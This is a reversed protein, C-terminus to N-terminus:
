TGQIFARLKLALEASSYVFAEAGAQALQDAEDPTKAHAIAPVGASKAAKIDSPSSAIAAYHGSAAELATVAQGISTAVAAVQTSLDHADLYERVEAAPMESVVVASRGSERCATLVDLIHPAPPNGPSASRIPGDFSILLYRAQRIIQDLAVSGLGFPSTKMPGFPPRSRRDFKRSIQSRARSAIPM